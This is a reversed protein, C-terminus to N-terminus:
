GENEDGKSARKQKKLEDVENEIGLERYYDELDSDTEEGNLDSENDDDFNDENEEAPLDLDGEDHDIFEANEMEINEDDDGDKNIGTVDIGAEALERELDPDEAEMVRKYEEDSDYEERKQRKNPAANGGRQVYKESENKNKKYTREKRDKSRVKFDRKRKSDEIARKTKNAM